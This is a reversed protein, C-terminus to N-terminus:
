RWSTRVLITCTEKLRVLSLQTDPEIGSAALLPELLTMATKMARAAVLVEPVFIENAKFRRGVDEMGLTLADLIEQPNTNADIAEQTVRKADKRKGIKIAEVLPELLTNM